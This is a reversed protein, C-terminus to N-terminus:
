SGEDGRSTSCALGLPGRELALVVLHDLRRRGNGSRRRLGPEFHVSYFNRTQRMRVENRLIWGDDSYAPGAIRRPSGPRRLPHTGARREMQPGHPDRCATSLGRVMVLQAQDPPARSTPRRGRFSTSVNWSARCDPSIAGETGRHGPSSSSQLAQRPTSPSRRTEDLMEAAAGVPAAQRHQSQRNRPRMRSIAAPAGPGPHEDHETPRELLHGQLKMSHSRPDRISASPAECLHREGRVSCRSASATSRIPAAAIGAHVRGAPEVLDMGSQPSTSSRWTPLIRVLAHPRSRLRPASHWEPV